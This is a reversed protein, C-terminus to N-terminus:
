NDNQEPAQPLAGSVFTRTGGLSNLQLRVLYIISQISLHIQWWNYNFKDSYIEMVQDMEKIHMEIQNLNDFISVLQENGPDNWDTGEEQMKMIESKM